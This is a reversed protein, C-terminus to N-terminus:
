QKETTASLFLKAREEGNKAESYDVGLLDLLALQKEKKERKFRGKIVKGHSPHLIGTDWDMVDLMRSLMRDKNGKHYKLYTDLFRELKGSLANAERQMVARIMGSKHNHDVVPATIPTELVPCDGFGREERYKKLSAATLIPLPGDKLAARALEESTM